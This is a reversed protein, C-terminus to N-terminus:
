SRPPKMHSPLWMVALATGLLLLLGAPSLVSPTYGFIESLEARAWDLIPLWPGSLTFLALVFLLNDTDIGRQAGAVNIVFSAGLLVRMLWSPSEWMYMAFIYCLLPIIPLLYRPGFGSYQSSRVAAAYLLYALLVALITWREMSAFNAAFSDSLRRKLFVLYWLCLLAFPVYIFLGNKLSFLHNLLMAPYPAALGFLGSAHVSTGLDVLYAQPPLFPNGFAVHQYLALASVPPLSSLITLLINRLSKMQKALPVALVLLLPLISLDVFLALGSLFGIIMLRIRQPVNGFVEPHFTLVFLMLAFTAIAANQQLRTSFFFAPTGFAYLFAALIARNNDRTITFVLRSLLVSGAATLLATTTVFSVLHALFFHLSENEFLKQLPSLGLLKSAIYWSPAALFSIGPNTNIFYHSNKYSLEITRSYYPDINISGREVLSMVLYVFRDSGAAKPNFHALLVLLVTAALRFQCQLRM